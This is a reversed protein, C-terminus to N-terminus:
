APPLYRVCKRAFPQFGVARWFHEAPANGDIFQLEVSESEYDSRLASITSPSLLLVAFDQLSPSLYM